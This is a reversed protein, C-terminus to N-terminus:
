PNVVIQTATFKGSNINGFVLVSDNVKVSSGNQYQTSTNTEVDNTAGNGAVTITSGNVATVVGRIHNQGANMGQQGGMFEGGRRMMRVNGFAGVKAGFARNERHNHFISGILLLILIIVVAPMLWSRHNRYGSYHSNTAEVETVKPEKSSQM